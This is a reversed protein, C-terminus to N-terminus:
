YTPNVDWVDCVCPWKTSSWGLWDTSATRGWQQLDSATSSCMVARWVVRDEATQICEVITMGTWERVDDTWLRSPRGRPRAGDSHGHLISTFLNECHTWFLLVEQMQSNLTALEPEELISSNTRHQRWSVRLMRRYSGICSDTEYSGEQTDLNWSWTTGCAMVTQLVCKKTDVNVTIDILLIKIACWCM